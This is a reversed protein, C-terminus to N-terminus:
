KSENNQRNKFEVVDIVPYDFFEEAPNIPEDCEQILKWDVGCKAAIQKRYSEACTLINWTYSGKKCIKALEDTTFMSSYKSQLFKRYARGPAKFQVMHCDGYIPHGILYEDIFYARTKAFALVEKSNDLQKFNYCFFLGERTEHMAGVTCNETKLRLLNERSDQLLLSRLLYRETRNM